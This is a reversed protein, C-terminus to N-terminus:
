RKSRKHKPAIFGKARVKVVVTEFPKGFPPLVPGGDSSTPAIKFRVVFHRPDATKPLIIRADFFIIDDPNVLKRAVELRAKRKAEEIFQDCRKSTNVEVITQYKRKLAM